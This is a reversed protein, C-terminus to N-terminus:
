HGHAGSDTQGSFIEENPEGAVEMVGWAGRDLRSLAHDVLIYKGPVELGFEVISSGGAPILTTQVNKLLAGGISGEPYVM